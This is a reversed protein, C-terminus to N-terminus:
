PSADPKEGGRQASIAAALLEAIKVFTRCIIYVTLVIVIDRARFGSVQTGKMFDVLAPLGIAAAPGIFESTKFGSKTTNMGNM